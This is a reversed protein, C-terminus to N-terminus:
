ERNKGEISRAKIGDTGRVHFFVLELGQHGEQLTLSQFDTRYVLDNVFQIVKFVANDNGTGRKNVMCRMIDLRTTNIRGM